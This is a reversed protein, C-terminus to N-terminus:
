KQFIDDEMTVQFDFESIICVDTIQVILSMCSVFHTRTVHNLRFKHESSSERTNEMIQLITTNLSNYRLIM